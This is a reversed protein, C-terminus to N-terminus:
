ACDTAELGLQLAHLWALPIPILWGIRWVAAEARAPQGAGLNQGVLTAAANSMGWAPLVTFMMLRIAITAGAVAGSGVAALIRMLFIWSRRRKGNDDDATREADATIAAQVEQWALRLASRGVSLGASCDQWRCLLKRSERNAVISCDKSFFQM